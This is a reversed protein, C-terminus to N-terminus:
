RDLDSFMAEADEYITTEGAAIQESAEQEGAQWDAQWFWRQDAPITTTGRVTVVGAEDLDFELQDGEEVGLAAAIAEPVTVQRKACM